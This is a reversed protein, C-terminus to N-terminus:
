SRCLRSVAESLDDASVPLSPLRRGRKCLAKATRVPLPPPFGLRECPGPGAPDDGDYFFRRATGDFRIEGNELAVIRDNGEIEELLQTAWVITAGSRHLDRVAALVRKRALPDLMATPEDLLLAKPQLALCSAIALLQKQGASLARTPYNLPVDLGVRRLAARAAPEMAAPDAAANELGFAIDEYVTDGILQSEPDQMVIPVRGGLASEMSGRSLPILGAWARVLTSKGSGNRGLLCIWEGSLASLRVERLAAVAHPAARYVVSARDLRFISSAM